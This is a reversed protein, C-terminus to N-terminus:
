QHGNGYRNTQAAGPGQSINQATKRASVSDAGIYVIPTECLGAIMHKLTDSVGFVATPTGRRLEQALAPYEGGLSEFTFFSRKM